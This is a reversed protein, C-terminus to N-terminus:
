RNSAVHGALVADGVAAGVYTSTALAGTAGISQAVAIIGGAAMSAVGGGNAIAATSMLGAAASGGAIGAGTFGVVQLVAPVAFLAMLFVM